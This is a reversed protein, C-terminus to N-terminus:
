AKIVAECELSRPPVMETSKNIGGDQRPAISRGMQECGLRKGLLLSYLLFGPKPKSWSSISFPAM